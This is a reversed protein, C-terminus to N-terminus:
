GNVVCTDTRLAHILRDLSFRGEYTARAASAIQIRREPQRALDLITRALGALDDAPMTVVSDSATWFPESLRGTTTVVPLGHALAAMMTGRRTSVGDIYPQVLLDCCQLDRSLQSATVDTSAHVRSQHVGLADHLEAAAQDAGRGLLQVHLNPAAALLPPLLERLALRTSAPYTSFHGLIVGESGRLVEARRSAVQGNLAQVPINSPVPLWWFPLDRRGFAWPRLVDAWAPISIWVRRARNLLLALMVRHMAAAANHRMGGEGFGLGPEHVMVDVVDGSAARRRIWRCFGVNMSRQGFAHPVWQVLLHKTGAIQGLAADVRARDAGTWSGAIAHVHVGPVDDLSTGEVAPCWVHVADGASALGAAVHHCYDSVGGPAPPYEGTIIHWTRM